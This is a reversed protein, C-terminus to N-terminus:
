QRGVFRGLQVLGIAAKVTVFSIGESQYTAIDGLEPVEELVEVSSVMYEILQHM